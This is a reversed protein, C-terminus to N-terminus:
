IKQVQSFTTENKGGIEIKQVPVCSSLLVTGKWIHNKVKQVPVLENVYGTGLINLHCATGITKKRWPIGKVEWIEFLEPSNRYFDQYYDQAEKPSKFAFIPNRIKKGAGGIKFVRGMHKKGPSYFIGAKGEVSSSYLKGEVLRFIKYAKM